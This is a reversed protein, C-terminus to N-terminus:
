VMPNLPRVAGQRTVLLFSAWSKIIVVYSNWQPVVSKPGLRSSVGFALSLAPESWASAPNRGLDMTRGFVACHQRATWM